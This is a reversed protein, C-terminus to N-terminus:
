KFIENSQEKQHGILSIALGSLAFLIATNIAIANSLKPIEYYLIPLNAAYGVVAVLGIVELSIGLVRFLKKTNKIFVSSYGASAIIFFAITTIVSPRGQFIPANIEHIDILNINELGILFGFISGLFLMGMILVILTSFIIMVSQRIVIKEENKYTLFYLIVGSFVFCIATAFKMRVWTPLIMSFISIDFYWGIMVIFGVAVSLGAIIQSIIIKNMFKM